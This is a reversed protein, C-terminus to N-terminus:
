KNMVIRAPVGVATANDPIDTIVVANAGIKVNAGVRIPGLIRAGSAVMVNDGIVPVGMKGAGLTGITVDHALSCSHGIVAEPHIILLGVHGIYFGSGIETRAPLIVGCTVRVFLDLGLYFPRLVLRLIISKHCYIYNGFRYVLIAFFERCFIARLVAFFENEKGQYHFYRGLDKKINEFM